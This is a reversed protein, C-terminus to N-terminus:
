LPSATEDHWRMPNSPIPGCRLIFSAGHGSVNRFHTQAQFTYTGQRNERAKVFYAQPIVNQTKGQLSRATRSPLLGLNRNGVSSWEMRTIKKKIQRWSFTQFNNSQGQASSFSGVPGVTNTGARPRKNVTLVAFSFCQSNNNGADNM